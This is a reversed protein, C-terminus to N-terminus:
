RGPPHIGAMRAAGFVAILAGAVALLMIFRWPIMRPGRLPNPLRAGRWGAFLGLAALALGLELTTTITM